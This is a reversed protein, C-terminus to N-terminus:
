GQGLLHRTVPPADNLNKGIQDAIRELECGTPALDGEFGLFIRGARHSKGHTVRAM